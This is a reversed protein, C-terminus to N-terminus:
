RLNLLANRVTVGFLHRRAIGAPKRPRLAQMLAHAPNVPQPLAPSLLTDGPMTLHNRQVTFCNMILPERIRKPIGARKKSQGHRPRVTCRKAAYQAKHM